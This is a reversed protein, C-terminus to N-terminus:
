EDPFMFAKVSRKSPAHSGARCELDELGGVDLIENFKVDWVGDLWLTVIQLALNRDM